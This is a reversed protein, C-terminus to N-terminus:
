SKEYLVVKHQRQNWSSAQGHIFVLQGYENMSPDRGSESVWNEYFDDFDDKSLEPFDYESLDIISSFDENDLLEVEQYDEIGLLKLLIELQSSNSLSVSYFEKCINNMAEFSQLVREDLMDPSAFLYHNM